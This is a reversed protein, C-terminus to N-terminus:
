NNPGGGSSDDAGCLVGMSRREGRKTARAVTARTAPHVEVDGEVAAPGVEDLGDCTAVLEGVAGGAGGRVDLGVAVGVATCDEVGVSCGDWEATLVGAAGASWRHRLSCRVPVIAGALPPAAPLEETVTTSVLVPAM